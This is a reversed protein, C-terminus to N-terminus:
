AGSGTRRASSRGFRALRLLPSANSSAFRDRAPKSRLRPSSCPALCTSAEISDLTSHDLHASGEAGIGIRGGFSLCFRTPYSMTSCTVIVSRSHFQYCPVLGGVVDYTTVIINVFLVISM